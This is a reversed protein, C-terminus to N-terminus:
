GFSGNCELFSYFLLLCLFLTTTKSSDRSVLIPSLPTENLIKYDYAKDQSAEPSSVSDPECVYSRHAQWLPLNDDQFPNDVNPNAMEVNIGRPSTLQSTQLYTPSPVVTESRRRTDFNPLQRILSEASLTKRTPCTQITQTHSHISNQGPTSTQRLNEVMKPKIQMLMAM